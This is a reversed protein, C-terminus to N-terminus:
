KILIKDSSLKDVMRHKKKFNNNKVKSHFLISSAIAYKSFGTSKIRLDLLRKHTDAVSNADRKLEIIAINPWDVSKNSTNLDQAQLDIDITLRESLQRDVLTVRQFRNELIASLQNLTFPSYKKIFKEAKVHNEIKNSDLKIRKKITKGKNSKHKIELFFLHSEIYERVRIKYRNAKKNHHELYMKLEATDYYQTKYNQYVKKNITLVKHTDTLTELFLLLNPISVLYKTDVRKLLSVKDMEELSISPYKDIITDLLM